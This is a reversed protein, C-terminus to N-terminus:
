RTENMTADKNPPAMARIMQESGGSSYYSPSRLKKGSQDVWAKVGGGPKVEIEISRVRDTAAYTWESSQKNALTVSESGIPDEYTGRYFTVRVESSDRDQSDGEIKFWLPQSPNVLIGRGRGMFFMAEKKVEEGSPSIREVLAKVLGKEVALVLEETNASIRLSLDSSSGKYKMTLTRPGVGFATVAQGKSMQTMKCISEAAQENVVTIKTWDEPNVKVRLEGGAAIRRGVPLEAKESGEIAPLNAAEPARVKAPEEYATYGEPIRFLDDSVAAQKVNKLEAHDGDPGAQQVRMLFDYERSEWVTMVEQGEMVLVIKRCPVGNITEEGAEKESTKERLYRASEFPNNMRSQMSSNPFTRYTKEADVVVMTQQSQRDVLVVVSEGGRGLELRYKSGKVYIKGGTETPGEKQVFDATFEAALGTLAGSLILLTALFAMIGNRM